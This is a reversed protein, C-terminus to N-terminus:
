KSNPEHQDLDQSVHAALKEISRLFVAEEEDSLASSLSERRAEVVPTAAAIVADGKETSSLIKRRGHSPDMRVSVFGGKQLESITRSLAAKDYGTYRVLEAATAEGFADITAV